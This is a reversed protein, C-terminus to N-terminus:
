SISMTLFPIYQQAGYVDANGGLSIRVGSGKTRLETKSCWSSTKVRGISPARQAVMCLSAPGHLVLERLLGAREIENAREPAPSAPLIDRVLKMNKGNDEVILVLSM